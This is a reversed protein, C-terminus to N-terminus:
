AELHRMRILDMLWKITGQPISVMWLFRDDVERLQDKFSIKSHLSYRIFRCNDDYLKVKSFYQRHLTIEELYFLRFGGPNEMRYRNINATIGDLERVNVQVPTNAPRLRYHHAMRRLILDPRIHKEGPIRPYPYRRMIETRIAQRKEGSLPATSVLELFSIDGSGEPYLKGSVTGDHKLCLATIGALDAREDEPINDWERNFVDMADPLLLDGADLTIFFKGRAFSLATNHAGAKGSNKQFIYTMPFHVKARERAVVSYTRDSSGDDVIIVEFDRFKSNEVSQITNALVLARNYTPIFLTYQVQPVM